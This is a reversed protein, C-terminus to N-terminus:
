KSQTDTRKISSNQSSLQPIIKSTSSSGYIQKTPSVLPSPRAGFSSALTVKNSANQINGSVNISSNAAQHHHLQTPQHSQPQTLQHHSHTHHQHQKHHHPIPQSSHIKSSLQAQQIAQQQKIIQPLNFNM